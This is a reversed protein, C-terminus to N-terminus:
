RLNAAATGAAFVTRGDDEYRDHRKVWDMLNRNKTENRGKPVLDLWGYVGLLIEGGRGYTSYTQYITGDRDKTFVSAGPLEDTEPDPQREFNYFIGDQRTASPFSVRYDFNFDNNGSSM